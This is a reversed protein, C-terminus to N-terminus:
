LDSILKNLLIQFRKTDGFFNPYASRLGELSDVSVLCVQVRSGEERRTELDSYHDNAAQSQGRLYSRVTMSSKEPDVYLLFYKADQYPEGEQSSKVVAQLGSLTVNVGLRLDLDRIERVLDTQDMLTGPVPVREEIKAIATSMLAFFREWLPQGASSKLAQGTFIDVTEVATAWAHQMQSRIQVEIRLGNYVSKKASGVYAYVLHHGRYGDTKPCEIYNTSKVLQHQLQSKASRYKAVLDEVQVVNPLVVRCGGIDQMRSLKMGTFRRLKAEISVHRKLRQSILADPTVHRARNRLTVQFTNLPYSHASRWNAIIDVADLYELIDEQDLLFETAVVDGAANVRNRSNEPTAWPM